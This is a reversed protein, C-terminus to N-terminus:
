LRIHKIDEQAKTFDSYKGIDLWYSLLPYHVLSEKEKQILLDMMDTANYYDGKKFLNRLEFKMLYIGGNSYYTYRPKEKFASVHHDNTELVAYPINVEYPISALAMSANQDKYFQYFDEFDINTLLDSNMVLIDHYGSKSILSLAGLTGLGETEEIYSISVGKPSGDGFYDMIQRKLYKVSIFIEKIGYSILRDINHELIPKSGVKLMPKPQTDTLPKLREGRGGAMILAAVPIVTKTIKLDLVELLYFEDDVLPILSIDAERFSKIRDINNNSEKLYKFNTNMFSEISYSIELGKLLGRRIDGDTLSGVLKNTDNIVFLTRSVSDKLIDLARLAARAEQNVKVIHQRNNNM